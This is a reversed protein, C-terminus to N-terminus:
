KNKVKLWQLQAKFPVTHHNKTARGACIKAAFNQWHDVLDLLTNNTSGYISLCYNVASLALSQVM